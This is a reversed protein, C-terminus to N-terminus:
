HEGIPSKRNTCRLSREAVLWSLSPFSVWPVFLPVCIEHRYLGHLPPLQDCVGELMDFVPVCPWGFCKHHFRELYTSWKYLSWISIHIFFLNCINPPGRLHTGHLLPSTIAERSIRRHFFLSFSHWQNTNWCVKSRNIRQRNQITPSWSVLVQLYPRSTWQSFGKTDRNCFKLRFHHWTNRYEDWIDMNIPSQHSFLM